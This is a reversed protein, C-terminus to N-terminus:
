QGMTVDTITSDTFGFDIWIETDPFNPNSTSLGTQVGMIVLQQM